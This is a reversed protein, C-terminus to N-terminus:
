FGMYAMGNVTAAFNKAGNGDEDFCKCKCYNNEKYYVYWKM